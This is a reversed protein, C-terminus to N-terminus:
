SRRTRARKSTRCADQVLFVPGRLNVDFSKQWADPTFQGLPQALANAANNVVIDIRGFAISPATSSRTCRTSSAWTRRCGSRRAAWRRRPAGRDGRVRRGQPEGGRRQRGRRRFGRCRISRHGADRRHRDRRPREPRVAVAVEGPGDPEKSRSSGPQFRTRVPRTTPTLGLADATQRAGRGARFQAPASAPSSDGSQSGCRGLRPPRAPEAHEVERRLCRPPARVMARLVLRRQDVAGEHGFWEYPRRHPSSGAPSGCSM